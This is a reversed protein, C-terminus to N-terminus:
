PAVPRHRGPRQLGDEVLGVGHSDLGHVVGGDVCHAGHRGGGAGDELIGLGAGERVRVEGGLM